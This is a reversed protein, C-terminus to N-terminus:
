QIFINVCDGRNSAMTVASVVLAKESEFDATIYISFSLLFPKQKSLAIKSM